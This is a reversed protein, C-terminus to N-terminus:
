KYTVDVVVKWHSMCGGYRKRGGKSGEYGRCFKDGKYHAQRPSAYYMGSLVEGISFGGGYCLPNRCDFYEGPKSSMDFVQRQDTFESGRSVTRVEFRFDAIDPFAEEFTSKGGFLPYKARWLDSAKPRDNAM